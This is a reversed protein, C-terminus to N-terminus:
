THAVPPATVDASAIFLILLTHTTHTHTHLTHLKHTTHTYHLTHTHPTRTCTTHTHPTNTHTHLTNTRAHTHVICTYSMEEETYVMVSQVIRVM